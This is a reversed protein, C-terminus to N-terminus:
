AEPPQSITDPIAGACVQHDMNFAADHRTYNCFPCRPLDCPCPQVGCQDANRPILDPGAKRCATCWDARSTLASDDPCAICSTEIYECVSSTDLDYMDMDGTFPSMALQSQSTPCVELRVDEPDASAHCKECEYSAPTGDLDERCVRWVHQKSVRGKTGRTSEDRAKRLDEAHKISQNGVLDLAAEWKKRWQDEREAHDAKLKAMPHKECQEIHATLREDQSVPTGGEYEHGCYVCTVVRNETPEKVTEEAWRRAANRQDVLSRAHDVAADLERELGFILAECGEPAVGDPGCVHMVKRRREEPTRESKSMGSTSPKESAPETSFSHDFIFPNPAESNEEHDANWKHEASPRGCAVGRILKTCADMTPVPDPAPFRTPTSLEKKALEAACRHGDQVGTSYSRDGGGYQTCHEHEAIETLVGRLERLEADYSRLDQVAQPLLDDYIEVEYDARHTTRDALITEIRRLLDTM